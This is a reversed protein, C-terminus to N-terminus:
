GIQMFIKRADTTRTDLIITALMYIAYNFLHTTFELNIFTRPMTYGCNQICGLMSKEKGQMKIDDLVM